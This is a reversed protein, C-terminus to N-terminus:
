ESPTSKAWACVQSCRCFCKRTIILKITTYRKWSSVSSNPLLAIVKRTQKRSRPKQLYLNNDLPNFSIIKERVAKQFAGNILTYIKSIVSDSYDTITKFYEQLDSDRTKRIPIRSISHESIKALTSANRAAASAGVLNLDIKTQLNKQIVEALAIDDDQTLTGSHLEVIIANIKEKVAKQTKGYVTKRQLKGDDKIGVTYQGTWLKKSEIYYIIGEGNSNSKTKSM